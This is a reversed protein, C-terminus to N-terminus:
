SASWLETLNNETSNSVSGGPQIGWVVVRFASGQSADRTGGFHPPGYRHCRSVILGAVYVIHYLAHYEQSFLSHSPRPEFSITCSGVSWYRALQDSNYEQPVM